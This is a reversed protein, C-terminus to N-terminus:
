KKYFEVFNWDKDLKMAMYLKQKDYGFDCIEQGVEKFDFSKFTMLRWNGFGYYKGDKEAICVSHGKTLSVFVSLLYTNYGIATLLKIGLNSFDDCDGRGDYMFCLHHKSYDIFGDAEYNYRARLYDNIEQPTLSKCKEVLDNFEKETATLGILKKFRFLIISYTRSLFILCRLIFEM